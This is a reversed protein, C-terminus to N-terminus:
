SAVSIMTAFRSSINRSARRNITATRHVRVQHAKSPTQDSLGQGHAKFSQDFGLPWVQSGSGAM